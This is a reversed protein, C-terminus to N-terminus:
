ALRAPNEADDRALYNAAIKLLPNLERKIERTYGWEYDVERFAEEAQQRVAKINLPRNEEASFPLELLSELEPEQELMQKILAILDPKSRKDLLVDISEVEQFSDPDNMWTLLLAVVHKRHGGDGV